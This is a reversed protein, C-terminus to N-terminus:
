KFRIIFNVSLYPPMNNHPLNGGLPDTVTIGTSQSAITIGTAHNDITVANPTVTVTPQQSDTRGANTLYGAVGLTNTVGPVIVGGHDHPAQSAGHGHQPSTHTHGNDTLTHNHTKDTIPHAHAPLEGNVLQHTAEGGTTGVGAFGFGAIPFRGNFLPLNFNAGSGGFAYGVVAFLAAYTGTTARSSGDCILWNAPASGGGFMTISGIPVIGQQNAFVLADIADLDDNLFGGWTSASKTVEPKTWAYHQTTSEVM